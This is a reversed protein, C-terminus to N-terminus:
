PRGRYTESLRPDLLAAFAPHDRGRDRIHFYLPIALRGILYLLVGFLPILFPSLRVRGGQRIEDHGHRVDSVAWTRGDSSESLDRAHGESPPGAHRM